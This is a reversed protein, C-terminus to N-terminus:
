DFYQVIFQDLITTVQLGNNFNMLQIKVQGELPKAIIKEGSSSYLYVNNELGDVIGVITKGSTSTFVVVDDVENFPLKLSSFSMGDKNILHIENSSKLVIVPNKNTNEVKIIESNDYTSYKLKGGKQNIKILSNSEDLGFQILENPIKTSIMATPLNFERHTRNKELNYMEFFLDNSFGAFLKNQSSWVDIQQSILEKSKFINLERGEGDFKLVQKNDNAILFYSKGKWRYFKVENSAATELQIPFGSSYEGNTKWLHIRDETNLLICIEGNSYLDITKLGGTIKGEVTKKWTLKSDEYFSLEGNKGLVVVNGNGKLSSFDLIDYGVNMTITEQKQAVKEQKVAGFLTQLIKGQFVAKSYSSENSIFRESVKKPLQGYVKFHVPQNLAITNGLKFDAIVNDCTNESESIVVLDELYKIFYSNGEKPFGEILQDSFKIEGQTQHLDNLILVPDQGDVYDTIIATNGKYNLIVFGNQLWQSMTGHSYVSDITAYYDREYFHYTSFKSSLVNAFVEEDKIKKGQTIKENRTIYNIKGNELFYIDSIINSRGTNEFSFVSVSSKKDYSFDNLIVDSKKIEGKKLYLSAKFYRGDYDGFTFNSGSFQITQAHKEFFSSISSESWNKEAKILLHGQKFSVFAVEFNKKLFSETIAFMPSEEFEAIQDLQTESPRNIILIQQDSTTFLTEPSYNSKVNLIDFGVFGIWAISAIITLVLLIRGFM